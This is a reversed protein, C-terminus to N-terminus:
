ERNVEALLMTGTLIHGNVPKFIKFQYGLNLSEIYPKIGFFDTPTHHIHILLAPKQEKLTNEAGRIAESEMGEIHLKILSVKLDMEEVFDDISQMEILNEKEYTRSDYPKMTSWNLKENEMITAKKTNGGVAKNIVVINDISNLQMAKKIYECNKKMAEWAYVKGKTMKAFLLSSDGIFAGADIINGTCIENLSKFWECGYSYYYVVPDFYNQVLFNNQYAFLNEDLRFIKKDFENYLKRLQSKELEDFIDMEDDNCLFLKELRDLIINVTEVSGGDLNKILLFYKEWFNADKVCYQQMYQSHTDREANASTYLQKRNRKIELFLSNTVFLVNKMHFKNLNHAIEEHFKEGTAVIFLADQAYESVEGIEYVPINNINTNGNSKSIAFCKIKIGHRKLEKEVIVGVNGCGYVIITDYQRCFCIFDKEDIM